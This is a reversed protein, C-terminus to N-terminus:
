DLEYTDTDVPEDQEDEYQYEDEKYFDLESFELDCDELVSSLTVDVSSLDEWLKDPIGPLDLDRVTMDYAALSEIVRGIRESLDTLTQRDM